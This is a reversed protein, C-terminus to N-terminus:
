YERKYKEKTVKYIWFNITDYSSMTQNRVGPQSRLRYSAKNLIEEFEVLDEKAM